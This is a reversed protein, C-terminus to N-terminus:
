QPSDFTQAYCAVPQLRPLPIPETSPPEISPTFPHFAELAPSSCEPVPSDLLIDDCILDDLDCAGVRDVWSRLYAHDSDSPPASLASRLRANARECRLLVDAISDGTYLTLPYAPKLLHQVARAGVAWRPTEESPALAHMGPTM